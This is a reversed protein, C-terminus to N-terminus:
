SIKEYGMKSISVKFVSNDNGFLAVRVSQVFLKRVRRLFRTVIIVFWFTANNVGMIQSIWALFGFFNRIKTFLRRPM